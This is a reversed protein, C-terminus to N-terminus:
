FTLILDVCDCSNSFVNVWYGSVARELKISQGLLGMWGGKKGGEESFDFEKWTSSLFTTCDFRQQCIARYCPCRPLVSMLLQNM